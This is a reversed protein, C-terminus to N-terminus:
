SASSGTAWRDPLKDRLNYGDTETLKDELSELKLSDKFHALSSPVDLQKDSRYFGVSIISEPPIERGLSRDSPHPGVRTDVENSPLRFVPMLDAQTHYKASSLHSNERVTNEIAKKQLETFLCKMKEVRQQTTSREDDTWSAVIQANHDTNPYEGSVKRAKARSRANKVQESLNKIRKDLYAPSIKRDVEHISPADFGGQTPNFREWNNPFGMSSAGHLKGFKYRKELPVISEVTQTKTAAWDSSAKEMSELFGPYGIIMSNLARSICDAAKGLTFASVTQSFTQNVSNFMNDKFRRVVEQEMQTGPTGHSESPTFRSELFTLYDGNISIETRHGEPDSPKLTCSVLDTAQGQIITAESLQTSHVKMRALQDELQSEYDGPASSATM